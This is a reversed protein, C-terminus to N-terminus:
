DDENQRFDPFGEETWKITRARTHRNPDSLPSGQLEKYDRAHYIMVDTKGDEAVTFSNHGPGYRKIAENTYFVPKESKNWSDPNMLDADEDAWLLGVCYNHDTASASYTVFIKGNKKLVAPGENVNYGTREWDYEPDCIVVEEGKLKIPTEMESILLSTNEGERVHQAWIYYLKGKHEFTTADLSFSENDTYIRGEEKWEGTTPDESDNSLAYMRINWVHEAEGAAFYIYWKGNTRHLEPAWIHHGMVGTTHKTWIVKAEANTLGNITASKRIEIRDYEPATAVYYYMDNDGKIVWPDARQEVIPNSYEIKTQCGSFGMALVFLLLGACAMKCFYKM